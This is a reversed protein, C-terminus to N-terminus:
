LLDKQKGSVERRYHKESNKEGQVWFKGRVFVIKRFLSSKAIPLEWWKRAQLVWGKGKGVLKGGGKRIGWAWFSVAPPEQLEWFSGKEGGSSLSGSRPTSNEGGGKKRGKPNKYSKKRADPSSKQNSILPTGEAKKFTKIRSRKVQIGRGETKRSAGPEQITACLFPTKGM